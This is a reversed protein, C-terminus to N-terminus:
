SIQTLDDLFIWSHNKEDGIFWEEFIAHSDDFREEEILENMRESHYEELLFISIDRVSYKM